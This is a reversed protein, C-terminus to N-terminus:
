AVRDRHAGHVAPYKPTPSKGIRRLELGASRFIGTTGMAGGGGGLGEREGSCGYGGRRGSNYSGLINEVANFHEAVSSESDSVDVVGRENTV